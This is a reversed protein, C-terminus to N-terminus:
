YISNKIIIIIALRPTREERIVLVSTMSVNIDNNANFDSLIYQFNGWVDHYNRKTMFSAKLVYM